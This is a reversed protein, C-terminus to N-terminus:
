EYLGMGGSVGVEGMQGREMEQCWWGAQCAVGALRQRNPLLQLIVWTKRLCVATVKAGSGFGPLAAASLKEPNHNHKVRLM